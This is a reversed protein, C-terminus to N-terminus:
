YRGQWQFVSFFVGAVGLKSCESTRLGWRDWIDMGGRRKRDGLIPELPSVSGEIFTGSTKGLSPM